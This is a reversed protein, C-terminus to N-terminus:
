PLSRRHDIRCDDLHQSRALPEAEQPFALDVLHDRMSAMKDDCELPDGTGDSIDPGAAPEWPEHNRVVSGIHMDNEDVASGLPGVKEIPHRTPQSPGISHRHDTRIDRFEHCTGSGVDIGHDGSTKSRGLVCKPESRLEDSWGPSHDDTFWRLTM